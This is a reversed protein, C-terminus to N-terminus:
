VKCCVRERCSARGIQRNPPVAKAVCPNHLAAMVAVLASGAHLREASGLTDGHSNSDQEGDGCRQRKGRTTFGGRSRVDHPRTGARGVLDRTPRPIMDRCPRVARLVTLLIGHHRVCWRRAGLETRASRCAGFAPGSASRESAPKQKDPLPRSGRVSGGKREDPM